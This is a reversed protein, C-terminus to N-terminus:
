WWMSGAIFVDRYNVYTSCNTKCKENRKKKLEVLRKEISNLRREMRIVEIKEVIYKVLPISLFIAFLSLMVIAEFEM